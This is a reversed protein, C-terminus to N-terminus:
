LLYSVTTHFGQSFTKRASGPCVKKCPSNGPCRTFIFRFQEITLGIVKFIPRIQNCNAYDRNVRNNGEKDHLM